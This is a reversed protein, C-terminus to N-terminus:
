RIYGRHTVSANRNLRLHTDRHGLPLVALGLLIHMGESGTQLSHEMRRSVASGAPIPKGQRRAETGIGAGCVGEYVACGTGSSCCKPSSSGISGISRGPERGAGATGTAMRDAPRAQTCVQGRPM